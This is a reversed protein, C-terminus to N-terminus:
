QLTVNSALTFPICHLYLNLLWPHTTYVLREQYGFIRLGEALSVARPYYETFYRNIVNLAFGLTPYIGDYGVDLHNMFVLHVKKIQTPDVDQTHGSSTDI